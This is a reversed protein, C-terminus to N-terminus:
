KLEDGLNSSGILGPWPSVCRILTDAAPASGPCSRGETVRTPAKAVVTVREGATSDLRRVSGEQHPQTTTASIAM